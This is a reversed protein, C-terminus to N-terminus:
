NGMQTGDLQGRYREVASESPLSSEGSRLPSPTRALRGAPWVEPVGGLLYRAQLKVTSALFVIQSCGLSASLFFVSRRIARFCVVNNDLPVIPVFLHTYTRTCIGTARIIRNYTDRFM